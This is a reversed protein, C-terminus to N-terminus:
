RVRMRLHLVEREIPFMRVSLTCSCKEELAEAPSRAYEQGEEVM